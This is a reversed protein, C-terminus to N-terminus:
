AKANGSNHWQEMISSKNLFFWQLAILSAANDIKGTNLWEKAQNEPVRHVLIDEAEHELGHIGSAQTADTQAIFIHIRETTGGPSALYSTALTLNELAIGAEEQAERFCVDRESEGADVIGAIVEILWPSHSTALAGIRIQEILVFENTVPDYPLVAVAHGREFVERRVTPTWSGDFKKHTFKYEVMTFFGEYLPKVSEIQVDESNFRQIKAKM